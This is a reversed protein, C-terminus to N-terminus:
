ITQKLKAIRKNVEDLYHLGKDSQSQNQILLVLLELANGIENKVTNVQEVTAFHIEM